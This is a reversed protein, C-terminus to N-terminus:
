CNVFAISTPIKQGHKKHSTLKGKYCLIGNKIHEVSLTRTGRQVESESHPYKIRFMQATFLGHSHLGLSLLVSSHVAAGWLTRLEEGCPLRESSGSEELAKTNSM